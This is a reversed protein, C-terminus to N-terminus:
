RALRGYGIALPWPSSFPVEGHYPCEQDGRVCIPCARHSGQYEGPDRQDGFGQLAHRGYRLTAAVRAAHMLQELGDYETSM